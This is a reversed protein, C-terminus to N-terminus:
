ENLTRQDSCAPGVFKNVVSGCVNFDDVWKLIANCLPIRGRRPVDSEHWFHRQTQLISKTEFYTRVAFVCHNVMWNEM